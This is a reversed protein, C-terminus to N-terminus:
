ITQHVLLIIQTSKTRYDLKYLQLNTIIQTPKTRHLPPGLIELYPPRLILFFFDLYTDM